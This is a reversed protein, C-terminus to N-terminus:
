RAAMRVPTAVAGPLPKGEAYAFCGKGSAKVTSCMSRASAAGFGAAAVRFYTKGNVKAETIVFDRGSLQSYRKQYIGTAREAGARSSFSGLQVLHTADNTAAMRRQSSAAAIRPAPKPQAVRQPIEQVVPRSVVREQAPVEYVEPEDAVFASEFSSTQAPAQEVPDAYALQAVDEDPAQAAAEAVMVEHAPYNALALHTPQGSDQVPSVQLLNAVRLQFAEPQAMAAWESIRADIQDAPVDEAAMVRAARWNGQLAYAYALNQRVKATNQGGRLANALVHVGRDPQGALAYALGLDAPDIDDQWQDLASAAAVNDGLAVQALAYSLVTRPDSDGLEIADNFSTAAAQFRGAELYAAGLLARYNANRPEALAAAEAHTVAQDVKGKTLAVQAKGFSTEARPAAQTACGALAISVLATSVALAVKPKNTETRTM